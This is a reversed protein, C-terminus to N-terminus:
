SEYNKFLYYYIFKITANFVRQVRWPQKVLRWLWELGVARLFKPARKVQGSIFDLAGGIGIAIKVGAVESLYEGIWMEQKIQGFAVILVEAGSQNIKELILKNKGEDLKIKGDVLEIDPGVDEGCIDLQVIKNNLQEKAKELVVRDGTGLLFVKEKNKAALECLDWVFDSGSIRQIKSASVLTIGFGDCLNMDGSNLVDKFEPYREALVIMEPNPTFIKKQGRSKLWLDVKERAESITLNDVRVDLVKSM